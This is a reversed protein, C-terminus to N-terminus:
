KLDDGYAKILEVAADTVADRVQNYLSVASMACVGFHEDWCACTKRLCERRSM